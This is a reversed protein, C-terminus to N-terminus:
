RAWVLAALSGPSCREIRVAARYPFFSEALLRVVLGGPIVYEGASRLTPHQYTRGLRRVEADGTQASLADVVAHGAQYDYAVHYIVVGSEPAGFPADSDRAEIIYYCRPDDSLPDDLTLVTDGMRQNELSILRYNHGLSVAQYHLWGAAEKTYSSMHTPSTSEPNGWRSGSGMLDWYGLHGYDQGPRGHDYRDALHNHGGRTEYKGYLTHGLEHVWTGLEETESLLVLNPVHVTITNNRGSLQISHDPPLWMTSSSLPQEPDLRRDEGAYIVIVRELSIVEPLDAGALGKQLAAVGYDYGDGPYDSRSGDVRIWDHGGRPGDADVFTFDFQVCGYANLAFYRNAAEALARFRGISDRGPNDATDALIVLTSGPGGLAKAIEAEGAAAARAPASPCSFIVLTVLAMLRGVIKAWKGTDIGHM